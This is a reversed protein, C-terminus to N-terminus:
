LETMDKAFVDRNNGIFNLLRTKENESLDAASLTIGLEKAKELHTKNSSSSDMAHISPTHSNDLSQISNTDIPFLKGIIQKAHLHIPTNTYNLLQCVGKGKRAQLLVKASAVHNLSHVPELLCVTNNPVRSLHVPINTISHPQISISRRTRAIGIIFSSNLFNVTQCNPLTITNQSLDLLVKNNTLFDMGLIVSFHLRHFVHFKQLVICGQINVKLDVCGVVHLFDGGVGRAQSITSKKITPPYPLKSLQSLNSKNNQRCFKSNQRNSNLGKFSHREGQSQIAQISHSQSKVLESMAQVLDQIDSKSSCANSTCTSTSDNRLTKTRATESLVAASELEDLTHPDRMVVKERIEPLFGEMIAELVQRDPTGLRAATARMSTIYDQVNEGVRQKQQFLVATSCKSPNLFRNRFADTVSKINTKDANSHIFWRKANGRLLTPFGLLVDEDKLKHAKAYHELDILFEYAANEDSGDFTGYYKIFSEMGSHRQTPAAPLVPEPTVEDEIPQEVPIQQREAQSNQQASQLRTVPSRNAATPM